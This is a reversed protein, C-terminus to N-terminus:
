RLSPISLSFVILLHFDEQVVISNDIIHFPSRGVSQFCNFLDFENRDNSIHVITLPCENWIEGFLEVDRILIRDSEIILDTLRSEINM